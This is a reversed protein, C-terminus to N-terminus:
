DNRRFPRYARGPQLALGAPSDSIEGPVREVELGVGGRENARDASWLQKRVQEAIGLTRVANEIVNPGLICVACSGLPAEAQRMADYLREIFVLVADVDVHFEAGAFHVDQVPGQGTFPRVRDEEGRMGAM